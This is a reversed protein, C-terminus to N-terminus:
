VEPRDLVEISILNLTNFLFHPNTQSRVISMEAEALHMSLQYAQEQKDIFLMVFFYLTIELALIIIAVLIFSQSASFPALNFLYQWHDGIPLPFSAVPVIPVAGLVQRMMLGALSVAAVHMLWSVLLSNSYKPWLPRIYREIFVILGFTILSLVSIRLMVHSLLALYAPSWSLNILLVTGILLGNFVPLVLLFIWAQRRLRSKVRRDGTKERVIAVRSNISHRYQGM